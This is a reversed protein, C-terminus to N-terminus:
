LDVVALERGPRLQIEYHLMEQDIHMGVRQYLRTAGMKNKADVSLGVRNVGRDKLARFAHQLLAQGLGCRRYAKLVALTSIWGMEANLDSRELGNITGAIKEGDMALFWLEPKQGQTEFTYQKWIPFTEEFSSKIYGWNEQFAEDQAWFVAELDEPYRLTRLTIGQPWEPEAIQNALEAVMRWTYRCLSMGMGEFLEISPGHHSPAAVNPAFRVDQPLRELARHSTNLAWELMASGIGLGKRQPHVRGWIWPRAPPNFQDWLEVCGVVRGGPELVLRTSATLDIGIQRWEQEYRDVTWGGAGTLEAEAANFMPVAQPLDEIQAPRVQYGVNILNYFTVDM